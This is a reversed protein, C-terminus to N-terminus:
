WRFPIAINAPALELGLFPRELRTNHWFPMAALRAWIERTMPARPEFNVVFRMGQYVAYCGGVYKQDDGWVWPLFGFSDEGVPDLTDCVVRYLGINGALERRGFAMEVLLNSPTNAEGDISGIPINKREGVVNTIASKLFWRELLKGDVPYEKRTYGLLPNTRAAAIECFSQLARTFRGAEDDVSSLEGNHTVCLANVTLTNLTIARRFGGSVDTRFGGPSPDGRQFVVPRKLRAERTACPDSMPMATVSVRHEGSM